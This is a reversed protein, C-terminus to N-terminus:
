PTLDALTGELYMEGVKMGMWESFLKVGAVNLHNYDSWGNIPISLNSQSRLFPVHGFKLHESIQNIFTEYDDYGNTFFDMYGPAVPMEVVLVQVGNKQQSIVQELGVLNEPVMEYNSLLKYYAKVYDSDPNQNPPKSIFTGVTSIPLYGWKEEDTYDRFRLLANTFRLQLVLRLPEQYQLLFSHDYLWGLFNGRGLKYQIWPSDMITINAWEEFPNSYERPETGYILVQPHFEQVLVQSIVGAGAATLGDVGFNFCSYTKGTKAKFASQFLIPNFGQLVTSSGIMICDVRGEERIIRRMRGLQTVFQGHRSGIGPAIFFSQFFKERAIVEGVILFIILIFVTDRFTKGIPAGLQLTKEQKLTLTKLINSM